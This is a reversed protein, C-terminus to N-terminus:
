WKKIDERYKVVNVFEPFCAPCIYKGTDVLKPLQNKNWIKGCEICKYKENKM